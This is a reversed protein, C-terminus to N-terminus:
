ADIWGLQKIKLELVKNYWNRNGEEGHHGQWGYIDFDAPKIRDHYNVSYYTDSFVICENLQYIKNMINKGAPWMDQYHIPNSLNVMIFKAQKSMLYQHLLFIKELNQVDNWEANFRTIGQKNNQFQEEFNFKQTNSLSEVVVQRVDGFLNAYAHKHWTTIFNDSYTIYRVLPPIGIVFYDQHYDFDENLILHIIHDFSFGPHSFNDISNVKLAQAILGWFSNEPSVCFQPTTYSDGFM